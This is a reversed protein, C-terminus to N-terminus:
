LSGGASDSSALGLVGGSRGASGVESKRAWCSRSASSALFASFSNRRMSVRFRRLLLLVAGGVSVEGHVTVLGQYAVDQACM